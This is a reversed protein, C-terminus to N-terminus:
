EDGQTFAFAVPKWTGDLRRFGYHAIPAPDDAPGDNINYASVIEFGQQSFFRREWVMNAAVTEETSGGPGDHYGIETCALARTSGVINRLTAVEAERSRWGFHPTEPNNGEPYRHISCCIQQPYSAWPMRKLFTFGRRNLNSVVGLYLRLGLEVAIPVCEAAEAVYSELTWGFHELDPENGLEILSGHPLVLMQEARRIICLPQLGADIVEQAFLMTDQQTNEQLDIRIIPFPFAALESLLGAGIAHGHGVQLGATAIM